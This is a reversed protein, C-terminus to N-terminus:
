LELKKEEFTSALKLLLESNVKTNKSVVFYGIGKIMICKMEQMYMFVDKGIKIEYISQEVIVVMEM